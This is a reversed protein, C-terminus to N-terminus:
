NRFRALIGDMMEREKDIEHAVACCVWSCPNDPLSDVAEYVQKYTNIYLRRDDSVPPFINNWEIAKEEYEHAWNWLKLHKWDDCARLAKMLEKATEM